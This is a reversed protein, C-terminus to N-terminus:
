ADIKKVEVKEKFAEVDELTVFGTQSYMANVSGCATALRLTEVVDYGRMFGVACGAVFSDGSGVTNVVEISPFCVHYIEGEYAAISGQGGLSIVPLAVEKQALFRLAEIKEELTELRGSYFSKIEDTNPKIMYPKSTIGQVLADKSTDLIVKKNERKAIQILRYYFDAGMGQPLSGSMTIVDVDQIMKEFEQIFIEAIEKEIFPGPELVETCTKGVTDTVNVCIRTNGEIHVFRNEMGLKEVEDEIFKGNAGGVFGTTAVKEGLTRAVRAVNIGKGGPSDIVQIPRHVENIRYNELLYIKDVAPNMTISLIM